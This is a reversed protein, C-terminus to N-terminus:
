HNNKYLIPDDVKLAVCERGHEHHAGRESVRVQSAFRAATCPVIHSGLLTKIAGKSTEPVTQSTRCWQIPASVNCGCCKGTSQSMDPRRFRM